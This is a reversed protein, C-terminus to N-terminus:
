APPDRGSGRMATLVGDIRFKVAMGLPDSELHIDSAGTKLADYLTSDVFRVAPSEDAGIDRLNLSHASDPSLAARSDMASLAVSGLASMDSEAHSLWADFTEVSALCAGVPGFRSRAWALQDTDFPDTVMLHRGGSPDTLLACRRRATEAFSLLDFAPSRTDLDQMRVVPLDLLSGLENMLAQPEAHCARLAALLDNCGESRLRAITGALSDDPPM